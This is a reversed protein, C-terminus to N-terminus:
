KQDKNWGQDEFRINKQTQFSGTYQQDAKMKRYFKAYETHINWKGEFAQETNFGVMNNSYGSSSIEDSDSKDVHSLDYRETISAGIGGHFTPSELRKMGKLEGGTFVLDKKQTFNVASYGESLCRLTELNISGNGKLKENYHAANSELADKISVEGNGKVLSSETFLMGGGPYSKKPAPKAKVTSWHLLYPGPEALSSGDSLTVSLALYTGEAEGPITCSWYGDTADGSELKMNMEHIRALDKMGQKTLPAESLGWKAKASRIGKGKVHVTIKVPEWASPQSPTASVDLIRIAGHESGKVGAISLEYNSTPSPDKGQAPEPYFKVYSNTQILSNNPSRKQAISGLMKQIYHLLDSISEMVQNSQKAASRNVAVFGESVAQTSQSELSPLIQGTSANLSSRVKVVINQNSPRQQLSQSNASGLVGIKLQTSGRISQKDQTFGEVIITDDVQSLVSKEANVTKQHKPALYDLVGLPGFTKSIVFLNYLPTSGSNVITCTINSSEGAKLISPSASAFVKVSSVVVIVKVSFMDQWSMGQSDIGEAFLELSSNSYAPILVDVVRFEGPALIGLSALLTDNLRLVVNDLIADGSNSVLCSLEAQENPCVEIASPMVKLTISPKVTKIFISGGSSVEYGGPDFGSATVKALSDVFETYIAAIRISTGPSLERLQFSKAQGSITINSLAEEGTNSLTWTAETPQGPYVIIESPQGEIVLGSRLVQLPVTATAYVQCGESYGIARIEDILSGELIRRVQLMTSQGPGLQSISGIKGMIDSVNIDSLNSDGSNKVTVNLGFGLGRHVIRPGEVEIDMKPFIEWIKLSTNNTSIKGEKDFARVGGILDSNEQIIISGELNLEKGPMLYTTSAMKGGCYMKVESLEERGLNTATCLYGIAEGHPAASRNTTITIGIKSATVLESNVASLNYLEPNEALTDQIPSSQTSLKESVPVIGMASDTPMVPAGADRSPSIYENGPITESSFNATKFGMYSAKGEVALVRKLETLVGNQVSGNVPSDIPYSSKTTLKENLISNANVEESIKSEKPSSASALSSYNTEMQIQADSRSVTKAGLYRAKGEIALVRKTDNLNSNRALEEQSPSQSSASLATLKKTQILNTTREDSVPIIEVGQDPYAVIGKVDQGALDVATVAINRSRGGIALLKKEAPDLQSLVGVVRNGNSTVKIRRLQDSGKNELQVYTANDSTYNVSAALNPQASAVRLIPQSMPPSSVEKSSSKAPSSAVSDLTQPPYFLYSLASALLILMFAGVLVPVIYKHLKSKLLRRRIRGRRM